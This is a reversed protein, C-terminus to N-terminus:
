VGAMTGKWFGVMYGFAYQIANSPYRALLVAAFILILSKWFQAGWVRGHAEAFHLAMVFNFAMFLYPSIQAFTANIGLESGVNAKILILGTVAIVILLLMQLPLYFGTLISWLKAHRQLGANRAGLL